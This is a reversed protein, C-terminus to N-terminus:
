PAVEGTPTLTVQQSAAWAIDFRIADTPLESRDPWHDFEIHKRSGDPWYCYVEVAMVPRSPTNAIAMRDHREIEALMLACSKVWNRRRDSSPKWWEPAWPWYRPPDGVQYAQTFAAYCAGAAALQGAAHEDDHQTSWGEAAIQRHREALVDRAASTLEHNYLQTGAPLAALTKRMQDFGGDAAFSVTVSPKASPDTSNFLILEAWRAGSIFAERVAWGHWFPAIGVVGDAKHLNADVYAYGARLATDDPIPRKSV